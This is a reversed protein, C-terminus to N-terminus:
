RVEMKNLTVMNFIDIAKQFSFAEVGYSNDKEPGANETLLEMGAKAPVANM